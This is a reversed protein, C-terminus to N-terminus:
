IDELYNRKSSLFFDITQRIENSTTGGKLQALAIPLRQLMQKSTLIKIGKAKQQKNINITEEIITVKDHNREILQKEQVILVDDIHDALKKNETENANHLDKLLFIKFIKLRKFIETNM